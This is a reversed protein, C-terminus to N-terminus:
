FSEDELRHTKGLFIGKVERAGLAKLKRAVILFSKGTTYIDDFLLIKKGRVNGFDITELIDIANRGEADQLHKPLRDYRNTILSFGNNIVTKDCFRDCFRKFRIETKSRTSAPIICLWWNNIPLSLNLYYLYDLFMDATQISSHGDKFSWVIKRRFEYKEPVEYRVPYYALFYYYTFGAVHMESPLVEDPNPENEM